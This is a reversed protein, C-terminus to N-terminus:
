LRELNDVDVEIGNKRLHVHYKKKESASSVGVQCWGDKIMKEVLDQNPHINITQYKGGNSSHTMLWEQLKKMDSPKEPDVIIAVEEKGFEKDHAHDGCIFKLATNPGNFTGM